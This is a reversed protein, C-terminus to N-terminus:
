HSVGSKLVSITVAAATRKYNNTKIRAPTIFGGRCFFLYQYASGKPQAHCYSSGAPIENIRKKYSCGGARDLLGYQEFLPACYMWMRREPEPSCTRQCTLAAGVPVMQNDTKQIPQGTHRGM